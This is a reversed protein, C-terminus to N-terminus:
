RVVVKQTKVNDGNVLRIVYVGAPQNLNLEANGNIQQNAVTRGTVDVVQLTADGVNSVTWNTGNFYAFTEANNENTGDAKFVLRFRSTYDSTKAEFTYSPTQLLDVDMGTLNDILHLYNMEVNEAEVALTYTGNESARFSVPMEAEAASRVIAYDKNGQPIYLKTSNEFLQFKSLQRGEGFRVIARDVATGQRGLNVVLKSGEGSNTGTEVPSFIVTEDDESYQVFVGQMADIVVDEGAILGSGTGNMEYYDMSIEAAVEFPNGVLNWDAFDGTGQTLEFEGDGNYPTGVLEFSYTPNETTAKKAYLYGKGPELNFSTAEYNRWELDQSNDFYYLDFDGETMGAVASPSVYVPSAILCYGGDGNYGQVNLQYQETLSTKYDSYTASGYTVTIGWIRAPSSVQLYLTENNGEPNLTVVDNVVESVTCVHNEADVETNLYVTGSFDTHKTIDDQGGSSNTASTITVMVSSISEAADMKIYSPTTANNRIQIWPRGQSWNGKAAWTIDDSSDEYVVEEATYSQSNNTFNSKIEQETLTGTYVTGSAQAFVAKLTVDASPQYPATVFQPAESVDEYDTTYWGVFTYGAPIYEATATPLTAISQEQVVELSGDAIGNTTFSVTWYPLRTASATVEVNHSPMTFTYAGTEDVDQIKEVGDVMLSALQYGDNAVASLTVQKGEIVSGEGVGEFLFVNVSSVSMEVNQLSSVNLTYSVPRTLSYIYNDANFQTMSNYRSLIGCIVVNDGVLVDDANAFAENNLGKGKYVRIEDTETGDNSIYYRHNEGDGLINGDHFRSVIGSVYVTGSPLESGMAIIAAATYPNNATGPANPDNNTVTLEYTDYSANYDDNGAFTATINTTGAAVLTVNGNADVTAVDANTSAWSVTAGPVITPTGNNDYTVTATLQGATTSTYVDTNFPTPATITTTTSILDSGGGSSTGTVKIDDMRITWAKTPTHTFKLTLSNGTAGIGQSLLTWNANTIAGNSILNVFEGNDIQYQVNVKHSSSGGLAGFSVQLNEYGAINIGSIQIITAQTNATGTHYCGSLGSAGDYGNSLNIESLNNKGVSGNGSYHTNVAANDTFMNQTATFGNYSSYATNSSTSGFTELYVTTTEQGWVGMPITLGVLLALAALIRTFRKKM